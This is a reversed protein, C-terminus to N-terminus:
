AKVVNVEDAIIEVQPKLKATWNRDYLDSKVQVEVVEGVKIEGILENTSIIEFQGSNKSISVHCPWTEGSDSEEELIQFDATIRLKYVKQEANPGLSIKFASETFVQERHAKVTPQKVFHIELPM